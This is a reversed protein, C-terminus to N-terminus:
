PAEHLPLILSIIVGDDANIEFQGGFNETQEQIRFLGLGSNKAPQKQWTDVDFGPGEDQIRLIVKEADRQLLELSCPKEPAYKSANFLLERAAQYLFARLDPHHVALNEDCYLHVRGGFMQQHREVLSQFAPTINPEDIGPPHLESSLSRATKTATKLLEILDERTPDGKTGVQVAHLQAAVLIQQLDDHLVQAVHRRTREEARILQSTLSRIRNQFKQTAAEAQKRETVDRLSVLLAQQGEWEFSVSRLEAFMPEHGAVILEIEAPEGGVIPFGFPQGQLAESEQGLLRGAAPNAFLIHGDAGIVLVGDAISRIITLLQPHQLSEL